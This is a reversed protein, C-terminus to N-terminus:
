DQHWQTRQQIVQREAKVCRKWAYRHWTKWVPGRTEGYTQEGGKQEKM